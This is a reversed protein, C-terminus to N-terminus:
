FPFSFIKSLSNFSDDETRVNIRVQSTNEVKYHLEKEPEEIELASIIRPNSSESLYVFGWRCGCGPEIVM